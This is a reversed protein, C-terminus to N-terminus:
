DTPGGAPAPASAPVPFGATAALYEARAKHYDALAKVERLRASATALERLNVVFLNGDGLQFRELEAEQLQEAVEVEQQVLGVREYAGRLAAAARRVDAEIRDRQFRIEADLQRIKAREAAAKGEATRQQLPLTFLFGAKLEDGEKTISGEGFDRSYEAKLDFSPAIRNDALQVAIEAQRRRALLGVLEPRRQLAAELDGSLTAEQLPEPRPFGGPLAELTPPAANGARDRVFLGLEIAAQDLLQGALIVASRRELIARQNDLNEIAPLDGLEVADRVQAVRQEALALLQESITLQRGGAVWEWYASAAAKLFSLRQRGITGAAVDLGAEAARLAARRGDISRDRLLPLEVGVRFEGDSLTEEFGRWPAFNGRGLSYGTFLKAGLVQTPQEVLLDVLRNEYYGLQETEGRASLELDFGGRASELEGEARVAEELAAQLLPYSAEVSALVAELSLATAGPTDVVQAAASSAAVPLISMAVALVAGAISCGRSRSM